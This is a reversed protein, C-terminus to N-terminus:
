QAYMSVDVQSPLVGQLVTLGVNPHVFSSEARGEGEANGQVSREVNGQPRSVGGKSAALGKGAGRGKSTLFSSLRLCQASSWWSAVEM